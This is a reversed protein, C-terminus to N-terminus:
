TVSNSIAPEYAPYGTLCIDQGLRKYQARQLKPAGSTVGAGNGAFAVVPGGTVIPGLYVMAKHILREDLAQGLLGGGGEILVSTIEKKGLEKLIKELKGKRYVLTKDAFRDTFVHAHRPLLGSRSLIIRWPQKAGAIGRVTLRPDDARLTGAGILIADVQARLKHADRRSAPSTIWREENPPRTLRGDLTMGCKAIVFPCGTQIWHNYAENVQECKEALIGTRVKVGAEELLKIARGAHRPNPDIAGIVVRRVGAKIIADTCAGTRGFTSCPEVTVYLIASKPVPKKWNRLCEIEAHPLGARKHHGASVVAGKWVLLAGVAPNPSTKGVGKLAQALAGRM